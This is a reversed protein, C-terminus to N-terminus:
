LTSRSILKVNPKITNNPSIFLKIYIKQERLDIVDIQKDTVLDSDDTKNKNGGKLTRLTRLSKLTRSQQNIKENKIDMLDKEFIPFKSRFSEKSETLWKVLINAEEVPVYFEQYGLRTIYRFFENEVSQALNRTIQLYMHFKVKFIQEELIENATKRVFTHDAQDNTSKKTLGTQHLYKHKNCYKIYGNGFEDLVQGCMEKEWFLYEDIFSEVHSIDLLKDLVPNSLNMIERYCERDKNELFAIFYQSNLWKELLDPNIDIQQQLNNIVKKLVQQENYDYDGILVINPKTTM